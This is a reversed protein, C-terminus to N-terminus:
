TRGSAATRSIRCSSGPSSRSSSTRSSSRHEGPTGDNPTGPGDPITVFSRKAGKQAYYVEPVIAVPGFNLIRFSAGLNLGAKSDTEGADDGVFDTLNIGGRIGIQAFGPDPLLLALSM